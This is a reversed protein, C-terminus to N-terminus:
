AGLAGHERLLRACADWGDTPLEMSSLLDQVPLQDAAGPVTMDLSSLLQKAQDLSQLTARGAAVVELPTHGQANRASADGGGDLLLRLLEVDGAGTAAHVPTGFLPHAHNPDGGADLLRKATERQSNAIAALLPTMVIEPVEGAFLQGLGAMPQGGPLPGPAEADVAVGDALLRDIEDCDGSAAAQVLAPARPDASSHSLDSGLVRALAAELDPQPPVASGNGDAVDRYDTLARPVDIGLMEALQEIVSEAFLTDRTLIATVEDHRVGDRCYPLLADARGGTPGSPEDDMADDDFYDPCSNYHDLLRGGDFLWYCAVDSDHVMFSIAAVELDASLGGALDRIRDEIQSSAQEEYLSTWGNGATAIHYRDVGRRNLAATLATDDTTRLHTSVCSLGM